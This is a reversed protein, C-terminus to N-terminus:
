QNNLVTQPASRNLEVQASVKQLGATLAEIQKQQRAVTTELKEVKGHEKLFENLLMANVADYRVSYIKGEDDRIVLDPSVKAVEEAILGFQPTGESDNKYRFTVPQLGLIAESSKEMAKIDNKFRRASAPPQTGLRGTSNIYVPKITGGENMNYTGAIFAKNQGTRSNPNFTTGIRITNGEGAVGVNGVDINYGGTTLNYGADSGLAINNTGLGHTTSLAGDGVATNYAGFDNIQLAGDGIATNHDGSQNSQLAAEGIATNSVGENIQLAAAGVATNGAGGFDQGMLAQFGVATNDYGISNHQLAQSGVATNEIGFGDADVDNDNLALYGDATNDHGVANNFLAQFGTATNDAGHTNNSLAKWGNATNQSGDMNSFLAFFGTATNYSGTTNDNLATAGVATNEFGHTNLSLAGRGVATNEFGDTNSYLANLGIATNRNGSTLNFLAGFGEATNDNPYFGDPAPPPLLAKAAPLLAFCALGFAALSVSSTQKLRILPNM